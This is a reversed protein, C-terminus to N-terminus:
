GLVDRRIDNMDKRLKETAKQGRRKEIDRCTDKWWNLAASRGLHREKAQFLELWYRAETQARITETEPSISLWTSATSATTKEMRSMM